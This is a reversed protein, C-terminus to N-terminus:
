GIEVYDQKINYNVNYSEDDCRHFGQFGVIALKPDYKVLSDATPKFLIMQNRDPKLRVLLTFPMHAPSALLESFHRELQWWDGAFDHTLLEAIELKKGDIDHRRVGSQIVYLKHATVGHINVLQLTSPPAIVQGNNEKVM